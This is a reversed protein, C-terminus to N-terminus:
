AQEDSVPDIMTMPATEPKEPALPITSEDNKPDLIPDETPKVLESPSTTEEHPPAAFDLALQVPSATQIGM